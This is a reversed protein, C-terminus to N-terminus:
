EPRIPSGGNGPMGFVQIGRIAKQQLRAWDDLQDCLSPRPPAADKACRRSVFNQLGMVQQIGAQVSAMGLRQKSM